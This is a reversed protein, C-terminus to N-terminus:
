GRGECPWTVVTRPQVAEPGDLYSEWPAGTPAYGNDRLWSELAQYAAAVGQYPGVHTTTAALGGPLTIRVLGDAPGGGDSCPFGAEVHFGDPTFEYRAFPPGVPFGGSATVSALVREFAQSVFAGIGEHSVDASVIAAPQETIEALTIEYDM